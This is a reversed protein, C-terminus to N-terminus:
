VEAFRLGYQAMREGALKYGRKVGEIFVGEFHPAMHEHISAAPVYWGHGDWFWQSGDGNPSPYYGPAPRYGHTATM